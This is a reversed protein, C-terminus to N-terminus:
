KSNPLNLKSSKKEEDTTELSQPETLKVTAGNPKQIKAPQEGNEEAPEPPSDKAAGDSSASLRSNAQSKQLRAAFKAKIEEASLPKNTAKPESAPAKVNSETPTSMRDKRSLRNRIVDKQAESIPRGQRSRDPAQKTSPEEPTIQAQSTAPNSKLEINASNKTTSQLKNSPPLNKAASVPAPVQREQEPEEAMAEDESKEEVQVQKKAAASKRLSLRDIRMFASLLASVLCVLAIATPIIYSSSEPFGFSQFIQFGAVGSYVAYAGLSWFRSGAHKFSPRIVFIVLLLAMLASFTVAEVMMSGIVELVQGLFNLLLICCYFNFLSLFLFLFSDSKATPNPVAVSKQPKEKAKKNKLRALLMALVPEKERKPKAAVIVSQPKQEVAEPILPPVTESTDDYIVYNFDEKAAQKKRSQSPLPPKTYAKPEEAKDEESVPDEKVTNEEAVKKPSPPKKTAPPKRELYSKPVSVWTFYSERSISNKIFIYNVIKELSLADIAKQISGLYPLAFGKKEEMVQYSLGKEDLHSSLQDFQEESVILNVTIPSKLDKEKDEYFEKNIFCIAVKVNLLGLEATFRNLFEPPNLQVYTWQARATPPLKDKEDFSTLTEPVFPLAEVQKPTLESPLICQSLSNNTKSM